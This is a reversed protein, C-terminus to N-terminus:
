KIMDNLDIEIRKLFNHFIIAHEPSIDARSNSKLDHSIEIFEDMISALREKERADSGLFISDICIQLKNLIRNDELAESVSSVILPSEFPDSELFEISLLNPNQGPHKKRFYKSMGQYTLQFNIQNNRNEASNRRILSWTRTVALNARVKSWTLQPDRVFAYFHRIIAMVAHFASYPMSKLKGNNLTRIIGPQVRSLMSQFQRTSPDDSDKTVATIAEITGLPMSCGIIRYYQPLQRMLEHLVVDDQSLLHSAMHTDQFEGSGQGSYDCGMLFIMLVPSAIALM